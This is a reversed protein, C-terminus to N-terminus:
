KTDDEVLQRSHLNEIVQYDRSTGPTPTTATNWQILSPDLTVQLKRSLAFQRM